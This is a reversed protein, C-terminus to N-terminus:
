AKKAFELIRSIATLTVLATFLLSLTTFTNPFLIMATFLIFAETREMIGPSYHFSKHSNNASFIGVVLFSTVCLYCSGLMLFCYPLRSSPEVLALGAIVAFEVIRDSIIDLVAGQPTVKGTLRAYSGDLVDFYGSLLLFFVAVLPSGFALAPITLLGAALAALTFIAPSFKTSALKSVVPDVLAIQFPKRFNTGIM